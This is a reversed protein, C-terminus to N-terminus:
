DVLDKIFEFAEEIEEKTTMTYYLAIIKDKLKGDNDIYYLVFDKLSTIGDVYIKIKSNDDDKFCIVVRIKDKDLKKRIKHIVDIIFKDVDKKIYKTIYYNEFVAGSGLVNICNKTDVLKNIISYDLDDLVKIWGVIKSAVNLIFRKQSIYDLDYNKLLDKFIVNKDKDLVIFEDGKFEISLGYIHTDNNLTKINEKLLEKITM